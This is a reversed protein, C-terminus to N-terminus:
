ARLRDTSSRPAMPLANPEVNASPSESRAPYAITAQTPLALATGAREVADLIALLLDQQMELFEDGSQTSVYVFIEVDLSYSGVGVFRVPVPGTEIRPHDKLIKTVSDLVSRVQESSTDRRLNLTVHFLMKDRRSFNELTMSSFQGNPVSVLTRDATRIRTSRLGIDEVTGSRDGFKCFDGVSVPRDSIVSVGGFLNEITKQAALAVALGGVGLGALITTTNYGWNSLIAIAALAWITLKTVRLGVPLISSAFAQRRAELTVRVRSVIGEAIAATLAAVGSFLLLTVGRELYMRPMASAGVWDIAIRFAGAAFILRLPGIFRDLVGGGASPAVRGLLPRAARLILLCLGKSFAWVLVGALMLAIWRWLATGMWTWNVLPAPLNREIPSDSTLRAIQPILGRSQSSFLWVQLGSRFTVRELELDLNQGNSGYSDVRQFGPRSGEGPTGEANRSLTAVDFQVDRDLIQGLQQALAPGETLRQERAVGRLNFYKSAQAYNHAHYAELFAIVSSQPTERNLPDQPKTAPATVQGAVAAPLWLAVLLGAWSSRHKLFRLWAWAQARFPERVHAGV